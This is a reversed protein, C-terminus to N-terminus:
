IEPQTLAREISALQVPLRLDVTGHEVDIICGGVEVSRGGQVPLDRGADRLAATVTEVDNPHVSVRVVRNGASRLAGCVLAAALGSQAEAAAGVVRRAVALALAVTQQEAGELLVARIAQGEEAAIQLLAASPAMATRAAADGEAQGAAYGEAYAQARVADAQAHAEAVGQQAEAVLAHAQQQADDALLGVLLARQDLSLYRGIGDAGMAAGLQVDRVLRPSFSM